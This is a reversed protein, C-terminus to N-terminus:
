RDRSPFANRLSEDAKSGDQKKQSRSQYDFRLFENKKGRRGESIAELQSDSGQQPIGGGERCLILLSICPQICQQRPWEFSL